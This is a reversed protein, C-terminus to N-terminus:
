DPIQELREFAGTLKLRLENINSRALVLESDPVGTQINEILNIIYHIFSKANAMKNNLEYTLGLTQSGGTFAM